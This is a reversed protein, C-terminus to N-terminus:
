RSLLTNVAANITDMTLFMRGSELSIFGFSKYFDAAKSDIPDTVVAFSAVESSAQYARKLADALLLEGIGQGKFQSDRALRGLLTVPLNKYPMKKKLEEPLLERDISDSSLTYYGKITKDPDAHVFCLAVKRKIDQGAHKRLYDTLSQEECSFAAKKHSSDLAVTHLM